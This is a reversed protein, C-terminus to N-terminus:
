SGPKRWHIEIHRGTMFLGSDHFMATGLQPKQDGIWVKWSTPATATIRVDITPLGFYIPHYWDQPQIASCRSVFRYRTNERKPKIKVEPAYAALYGSGDEKFEVDVRTCDHGDIISEVKCDKPQDSETFRWGPIYKVVGLSENLVELEKSLMLNVTGDPNPVVVCTLNYDKQYLKTEFAIARIEAKLQPEHDFGIIHEFIGKSAEHLLKEKLFPDVVVALIAAVILAEGIAPVLEHFLVPSWHLWEWGASKFYLSFAGLACLVASIGWTPIRRVSALLSGPEIESKREFSPSM